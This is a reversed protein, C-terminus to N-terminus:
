CFKINNSKLYKAMADVVRGVSGLKPVHKMVFAETSPDVSTPMIVRLERGLRPRGSKTKAMPM